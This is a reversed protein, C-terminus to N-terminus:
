LFQAQIILRFDFNHVSSFLIWGSYAQATKPAFVSKGRENRSCVGIMDKSNLWKQRWKRREWKSTKKDTKKKTDNEKRKKDAIAM